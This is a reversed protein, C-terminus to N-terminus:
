GRGRAARSLMRNMEALQRQLRARDTDAGPDLTV